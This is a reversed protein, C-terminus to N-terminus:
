RAGMRVERSRARRDPTYEPSFAQFCLDMRWAWAQDEEAMLRLRDQHHDRRPVYPSSELLTYAMKRLDVIQERNMLCAEALIEVTKTLNLAVYGDIEANTLVSESGSDIQTPDFADDRRRKHAM